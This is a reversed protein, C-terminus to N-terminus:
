GLDARQAAGRIGARHRPVGRELGTIALRQAIVRLHVLAVIRLSHGVGHREEIRREIALRSFSEDAGITAALATKTLPHRFDRRLWSCSRTSSTNWESM